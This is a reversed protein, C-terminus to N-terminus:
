GPERLSIMSPLMKWRRQSFLTMNIESGYMLGFYIANKLSLSFQHHFM